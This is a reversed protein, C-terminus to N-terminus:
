SPPVTRGAWRIVTRGRLRRCLGAAIVPSAGAVRLRAPHRARDARPRGGAAGPEPGTMDLSVARTARVPNVLNLDPMVTGAEIMRLVLDTAGLKLLVTTESMNPESVAVHLRRQGRFACTIGYESELWFIRKDM